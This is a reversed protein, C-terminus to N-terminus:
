YQTNLRHLKANQDTLFASILPLVTASDRPFCREDDQQEEHKLKQFAQLYEARALDWQCCKSSMGDLM